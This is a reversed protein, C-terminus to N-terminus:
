ANFTATSVTIEKQGVIHRHIQHDEVSGDIGDTSFEKSVDCGVNVIAVHGGMGVAPLSLAAPHGHGGHRYPFRLTHRGRAGRSGESQVFGEAFQILAKRLHQQPLDVFTAHSVGLTVFLSIDVALQEGLDARVDV